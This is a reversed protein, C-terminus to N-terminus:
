ALCLREGRLCHMMSRIWSRRLARQRSFHWSAGARMGMLRRLGPVAMEAPKEILYSSRCETGLTSRWPCASRQPTCVRSLFDSRLVRYPQGVNATIRCGGSVQYFSGVTGRM